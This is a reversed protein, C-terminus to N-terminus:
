GARKFRPYLVILSSRTITQVSNQETIARVKRGVYDYLDHRFSDVYTGSGRLGRLSRWVIEMAERTTVKTPMM